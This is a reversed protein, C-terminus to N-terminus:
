YPESGVPSGHGGVRGPTSGGSRAASGVRGSAVLAVAFPEGGHPRVRVPHQLRPTVPPAALVRRQEGVTDVDVRVVRGDPLVVALREDDGVHGALLVQEPHEIPQATEGVVRRVDLRRLRGDVVVEFVEDVVAPQEPPAAVLEDVERREVRHAPEVRVDVLELAVEGM